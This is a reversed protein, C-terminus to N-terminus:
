IVKQLIRLVVMLKGINRFFKNHKKHRIAIAQRPIQSLMTVADEVMIVVLKTPHVYTPYVILSQYVLDRLTLKRERRLCRHEDVTLGWGAYFPLGYCYVHKGHLL